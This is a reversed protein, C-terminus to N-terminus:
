DRTIDTNKM